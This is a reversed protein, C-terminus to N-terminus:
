VAGAVRGGSGISTADLSQPKPQASPHPADSSSANM